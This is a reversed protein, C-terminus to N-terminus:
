QKARLAVDCGLGHLAGCHWTVVTRLEGPLYVDASCAQRSWDVGADKGACMYPLGDGARVCVVSEARHYWRLFSAEACANTLM